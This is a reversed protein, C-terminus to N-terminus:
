RGGMGALRFFNAMLRRGHPYAEHWGEPHFQTSWLPRDRHKMAQVRCNDGTAILDFGPPLQKIECVHSERVIFPDPLGEFLPDNGVKRIPYFGEEKFLGANDVTVTGVQPEGDALPRMPEDIVRPLNRFGRNYMFGLLQHSGCFAITPVEPTAAVLDEWPYFETVEFDRFWTSCGSLLLATPRLPQVMEPAAQSMHLVLCPEGSLEEFRRKLKFDGDGAEYRAITEVRVWIIM